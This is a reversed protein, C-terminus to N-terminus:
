FEQVVHINHDFIACLDQVVHYVNTWSIYTLLHSHKYSMLLM